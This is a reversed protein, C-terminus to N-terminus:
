ENNNNDNNKSKPTRSITMIYPAYEVVCRRATQRIIRRKTKNLEAEVIM